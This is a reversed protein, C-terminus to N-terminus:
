RLPSLSPRIQFTGFFIPRPGLRARVTICTPVGTGLRYQPQVRVEATGGTLAFDRIRTELRRYASGGHLGRHWLSVGERVDDPLGELLEAILHGGHSVGRREFDEDFLVTQGTKSCEVMTRTVAVQAFSVRGEPDSPGLLIWGGGHQPYFGVADPVVLEGTM